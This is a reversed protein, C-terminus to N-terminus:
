HYRLLGNGPPIYGHMARNLEIRLMDFSCTIFPDQCDQVFSANFAIDAHGITSYALGPIYDIFEVYEPNVVCSDANNDTDLFISNLNMCAQKAQNKYNKIKKSSLDYEIDDITRIQYRDLCAGIFRLLEAPDHSLISCDGEETIAIGFNEIGSSHIIGIMNRMLERLVNNEKHVISEPDVEMTFGSGDPTPTRVFSGAVFKAQYLLDGNVDVYSGFMSLREIESSLFDEILLELMSRMFLTASGYFQMYDEMSAAVDKSVVSPTAANNYKDKIM